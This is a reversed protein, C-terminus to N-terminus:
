NKYKYTDRTNRPIGPGNSTKCVGRLPSIAAGPIFCVGQYELSWMELWFRESVVWLRALNKLFLLKVFETFAVHTQVGLFVGNSYWPQELPSPHTSDTVPADRPITPHGSPTESTNKPTGPHEPGTGPKVRCVEGHGRTVDLLMPFCSQSIRPQYGPTPLYKIYPSMYQVSKVQM